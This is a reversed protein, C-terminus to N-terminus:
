IEQTLSRAAVILSFQGIQWIQSQTPLVTSVRVSFQGCVTQLIDFYNHNESGAGCFILVFKIRTRAIVEFKM